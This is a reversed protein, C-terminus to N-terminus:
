GRRGRLRGLIYRGRVYWSVAGGRCSRLFGRNCVFFFEVGGNRVTVLGEGVEYHVCAGYSYSITFFCTLLIVYTRRLTIPLSDDSSARRKWARIRSRQKGWGPRSGQAASDSGKEKKKKEKKEKKKIPTCIM